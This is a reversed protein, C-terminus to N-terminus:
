ILWLIASPLGTFALLYALHSADNSDSGAQGVSCMMVKGILHFKMRRPLFNIKNKWRGKKGHISKM